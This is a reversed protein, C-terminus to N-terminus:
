SVLEGNYVKLFISAEKSTVGVSGTASYTKTEGATYGATSVCKIPISISGAASQAATSKIQVYNTGAASQTSYTVPTFATNNLSGTATQSNSLTAKTATASGNTSISHSSSAVTYYKAGEAGSSTSGAAIWGANAVNVTGATPTVTIYCGTSPKSSVSTIVMNSGEASASASKTASASTTKIPVYTVASANAGVTGAIGHNDSTGYGATTVSVTAATTKAPSQVAVYVGSTPATTTSNDKAADTVGSISIAQKGIAPTVKGGITAAIKSLKATSTISASASEADKKGYGSSTVSASATGTVSTDFNGNTSNYSPSIATISGSAGLGIADLSASLSATGSVSGTKTTAGLGVYKGGSANDTSSVALGSTSVSASATGSISASGTVPYKGSAKTGITVSTISASGTGSTSLAAKPMTGTVLTGDAANATKNSYLWASGSAALNAEGPILNQLSIKKATQYGPNVYLYDGAILAMSDDAGVETYDVGTTGSNAIGGAKIYKTKTNQTASAKASTKSASTTIWGETAVGATIEARDANATAIVPFGTNTDTLYTSSSFDAKATVGGGSINSLTGVKLYKTTTAQAGAPTTITIKGDAPIWGATKVVDVGSKSTAKAQATATIPYTTSTTTFYDESSFGADAGPANGAGSQLEGAAVSATAEIDINGDIYTDKTALSVTGKKTGSGDIAVPVAVEWAGTTSNKTLAM